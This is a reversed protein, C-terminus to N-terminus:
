NLFCTAIFYYYNLLLIKLTLYGPFVIGELFLELELNMNVHHPGWMLVPFAGAYASEILATLSNIPMGELYFDAACQYISPDEVLGMCVLRDPVSEKTIKEYEEATIGVFYYKIKENISLVKKITKFFNYNRDPIVKSFVSITLLVIEDDNIRLIARAEKKELLKKNLDIKVPLIISPVKDNRRHITIDKAFPRINLVCDCYKAGLWFVHDAHNVYITFPREEFNLAISPEADDPHQFNYVRDSEFIRDRIVKIKDLSGKDGLCIIKDFLNHTLAQIRQPLKEFTQDCVILINASSRSKEYKAINELLRTHGGTDYLKTAIFASFKVASINDGAQLKIENIESTIQNIFSDISGSSYRGTHYAWNFEAIIEITSIKEEINGNRFINCRLIDNFFKNAVILKKRYYQDARSINM